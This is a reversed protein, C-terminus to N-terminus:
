VFSVAAWSLLLMFAWLAGTNSHKSWRPPEIRSPDLEAMRRPREGQEPAPRVSERAGRRADCLVAVYPLPRFAEGHGRGDGVLVEAPAAFGIWRAERDLRVRRKHLLACLELSKPGRAALRPFVHNLTTGSDVIDEVVLVARGALEAEPEYLLRVEGSTVTGA